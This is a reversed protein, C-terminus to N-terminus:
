YPQFLVFHPYTFTLYKTSQLTNLELQIEEMTKVGQGGVDLKEELDDVQKQWTQIEQFFRDATEVPQM